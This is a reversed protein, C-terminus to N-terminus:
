KERKAKSDQKNKKENRKLFSRTVWGVKSGYVDINSRLSDRQPTYEKQM